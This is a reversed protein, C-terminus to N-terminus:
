PEISIGCGPCFDIYSDFNTDMADAMGEKCMLVHAKCQNRPISNVVRLKVHHLGKEENWVDVQVFQVDGAVLASVDVPMPEREKKDSMAHNLAKGVDNASPMGAAFAKCSQDLHSQFDGLVPCDHKPVPDGTLRFDEWGCDYCKRLINNVWNM